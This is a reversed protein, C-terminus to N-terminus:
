RHTDGTMAGLICLIHLIIGPVIFAVYGIVTLVFWVLGNIVQGKYLQGLGPIIFSLLGAVIRSWRKQSMGVQQVVNVNVPAAAAPQPAPQPAVYVQQPAPQQPKERGDLFENCHRCKVATEKIDEGCFPCPTTAALPAPPAVEAVVVPPSPKKPAAPPGAQSATLERSKFLGKVKSATAWKGDKGMRVKTEETIKGSDALQKLQASTFPGHEKGGKHVYWEPNSAM